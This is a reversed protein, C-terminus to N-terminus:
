TTVNIKKPQAEPLKPLTITLVGDKLSAVIADADIAASLQLERSFTYDVREKRRLEYGDPPATVAKAVIRLTRDKVSVELESAAVGPLEATLTVNGAGEVASLEPWPQTSERELRALSAFPDAFFSNNLGNHAFRPRTFLLM